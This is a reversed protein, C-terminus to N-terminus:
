ARADDNPDPAQGGGEAAGNERGALMDAAIDRLPRRRQMSAKQLHRHAAAESMSRERMLHLKARALLGRDALTQELARASSQLRAREVAAAAQGAVLSLLDLDLQSYARPTSSYSNIVGISQGRILMPVCLLSVIGEQRALERSGYSEEASVDAVVQPALTLIARGSVSRDVSLRPQNRYAPSLSQTAAISLSRGAEDYLLISVLKSQMLEATASVIVQLVDSLALDYGLVEVIRHLLTLERTERHTQTGSDM